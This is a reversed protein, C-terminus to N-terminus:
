TQPGDSSPRLAALAGDWEDEHGTAVLVEDHEGATEATVLWGGAQSTVADVREARLDVSMSDPAEAILREFGEALYRGVQGRPPYAEDGLGGAKRRWESFSPGLGEPWMDVLEAAFNMRLYDPQAPDYVPGAGPAPSPEYITLYISGAPLDRAHNVLREFAFLGKPGLGVIAVRLPRTASPGSM